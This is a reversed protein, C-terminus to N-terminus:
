SERPAPVWPHGAGTRDIHAVVEHMPPERLGDLPRAHRTWYPSLGPDDALAPGWRAVLEAFEADDWAVQPASVNRGRTAGEHHVAEIAPEYLVLGGAARVRLCYDVDNYAVALREDFGGTRDLWARTTGLCAGTVAAVARRTVWRRDPGPDDFPAGRGEHEPGGDGTGLVIGAHQVATDPYLLRAGVAGVEPRALAAALAADWGPSLLEVDDNLFLLLSAETAAAGLRNARSWNFPGPMPVVAVDPAPDLPDGNNVVVARLRDPASAKTRLGHLAQALLDPRDRTPIVVAISPESTSARLRPDSGAGRRRPLVVSSAGFVTALVRPVHAVRPRAALLLAERLTPGDPADPLPGRAAALAPPGDAFTRDPDFAGHLRPDSRHEGRLPDPRGRDEDAFAAPAGTRALAFLLWALAEPHLVTGGDLVAAAAAALPQWPAFAVEAGAVSAVPHGLLDADATVRAQWGRVSQDGLSRLTARLGAATRGRADVLVLLDGAAPLPGPPPRVPIDRRFRDWDARAYGATAQWDRVAAYGTALLAAARAPDRAAEAAAAPVADRAGMAILERVPDAWGPRLRAGQAYAAVARDREGQGRLAHGLYLHAEADHRDLALARLYAREAAAADGGERRVHGLQMWMGADDPRAAVVAAYLRAAEAWDRRDRAADADAVPVPDTM